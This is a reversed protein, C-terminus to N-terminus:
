STLTSQNFNTEAIQNLIWTWLNGSKEKKKDDQQKASSIYCVINKGAIPM